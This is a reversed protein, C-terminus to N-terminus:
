KRRGSWFSLLRTAMADPLKMTSTMILHLFQETEEDQLRRSHYLLNMLSLITPGQMFLPEGVQWTDPYPNKKPDMEEITRAVVLDSSYKTPTGRDIRKWTTARQVRCIRFTSIAILFRRIRRVRELLSDNARDGDMVFEKTLEGLTAQFAIFQNQVEKLKAVDNQLGHITDALYAATDRSLHVGNNDAFFLDNLLLELTSNKPPDTPTSM